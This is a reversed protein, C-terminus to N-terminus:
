CCFQRCNINTM